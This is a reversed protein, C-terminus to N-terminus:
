TPSSSNRNKLEGFSLVDGEDTTWRLNEVPVGVRQSAYIVTGIGKYYESPRSEIVLIFNPDDKLASALADAVEDMGVFTRDGITITTDDVVVTSIQNNMM